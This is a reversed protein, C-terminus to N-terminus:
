QPNYLYIYVQGANRIGGVDRGHESILIVRSGDVSAVSWGFGAFDPDPTPAWLTYRAPQASGNHLFVFAAGPSTCRGVTVM